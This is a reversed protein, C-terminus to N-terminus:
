VLEPAPEVEPSAVRGTAIHVEILTGGEPRRSISFEGHLARVRQRMGAIGHSLLNTQADDPIGVGDDEVLMSVTDTTIGLDVNVSKAQAYKM